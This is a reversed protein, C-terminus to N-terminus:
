GSFGSQRLRRRRGGGNVEHYLKRNLARRLESHESLTSRTKWARKLADGDDTAMQPVRLVLSICPAALLPINQRKLVCEIRCVCICRMLICRVTDITEINTHPIM